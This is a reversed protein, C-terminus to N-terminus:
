LCRCSKKYSWNKDWISIVSGLLAGRGGKGWIRWVFPFLSSCLFLCFFFSLLLRGGRGWFSFCLVNFVQRARGVKMGEDGAGAEEYGGGEKPFRRTSICGVKTSELFM